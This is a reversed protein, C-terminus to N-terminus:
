KISIPNRQGQLLHLNEVIAALIAAAQVVEDATTWKGLGFRVSARALREPVGIATLVHSPERNTSSCAAGSSVCLDSQDLRALLADGDIDPLGVNLNHPLVSPQPELLAAEETAKKEALPRGNESFFAVNPSPWGHRIIGPIRQALESWLLDRLTALRVTTAEREQECLELAKAFGVILALPLSGSRRGSQQGGGEIQPVLPFLGRDRRVVLAGIGPPGYFKHASLSMLDIDTARLDVAVKGVAQTADSHLWVGKERCISAIEDLPAITGIENNAWMVSVLITERTIAKWLVDLDLQGRGDVPMVAVPVGSRALKKAPDLVSRHETSGVILGRYDVSGAVVGKIALNNAETAGSTWIVERPDVGLLAAVQERASQEVAAAALGRRHSISAPNGYKASFYPLMVELVRPDVPTTAHHDFDLLMPLPPVPDNLSTQGSM